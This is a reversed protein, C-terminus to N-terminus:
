EVAESGTRMRQRAFPHWMGRRVQAWRQPGPERAVVSGLNICLSDLDVIARGRQSGCRDNHALQRLREREVDDARRGILEAEDRVDEASERRAEETEVEQGQEVTTAVARGAADCM